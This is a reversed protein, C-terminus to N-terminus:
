KDNMQLHNLPLTVIFATGVGVESKVVIKGGHADVCQKVISLGLGTGSINAVNSGRHFSNFLKERDTVPIGIGQDQIEFIAKEQEVILHFTIYCNRAQQPVTVATPLGIRSTRLLFKSM